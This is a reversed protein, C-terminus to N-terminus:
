VLHVLSKRQIVILLSLEQLFEVTDLLPVSIFLVSIFLV